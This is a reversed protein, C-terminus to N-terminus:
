ITLLRRLLKRATEPDARGSTKKMVQGVLFHFAESKGAKYDLVTKTNENIVEKVTPTLLKEDYIRAMKNEKMLKEPDTPNLVMDRLTFEATKVTVEKDEVMKLLKIIHWPELGTRNMRLNNYNLTKKLEKAFFNAALSPNTEKIVKEFVEALGPDSTISVSLDPPIGFQKEYRKIKESALEPLSKKIKGIKKKDLTIRPLDPEFIYGYDEEEEKTRLSRTVGAAADWTRTERVIKQGRRLLGKQRIVEYNLAREVDKFGTINKIEVRVGSSPRRDDTQTELSINSDVRMSGEIDPNFVDLYQLISSLEQLFLRAEKPNEFDPETVVECLPVGSRNYDVLVYKAKTISGGVHVIRGPDEEMHVRTIGIRKKNFMLHGGKALPIEYQSIQFDKPLDPYFYSKRSFFTEGPFKCNLALAIKIAYEVAAKNIAPKSGPMGLCTPCCFKNPEKATKNPCRCFLKTKTTLQVHIELGIKM